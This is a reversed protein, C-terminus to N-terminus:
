RRKIIKKNKIEFIQDCIKLSNLRHSVIIITIKNKLKKIDDIIKKETNFDLASTAEDLILIDPDKYIARAIGIRQKQGGSLRIGREGVFIQDNNKQDKLFELVQSIYISKELKKKDYNGDDINLTINNRITDDLLFTDQPVYGIIEQWGRKNFKINKGDVLVKGKQPDMLGLILDLFTSKGIGTKGIIGVCSNKKINLNSNEFVSKKVDTKKTKSSYFFSLNDIQINNRFNIRKKQKKISKIKSLKIFEKYILDLSPVGLKLTQINVMIRNVSPIIKIAALAILSLKPITYILNVSQSSLYLVLSVFLLITLLEFFHRPLSLLFARISILQLDRNTFIQFLKIFFKEKLFIKVTKIGNFSSQSYFLRKKSTTLKEEGIKKLKKKVIQYYVYSSFLYVCFILVLYKFPITFLIIVFIGFLIICDLLLHLLPILIKKVLADAEGVVNRILTTSNRNLYFEYNAYVYKNFLRSVISFNLYAAFKFQYLNYLIYFLTKISFALLLLILVLSMIEIDFYDSVSLFYSEFIPLREDILITTVPLILGIGLFEFFTSLFMMILLIIIKKTSGNPMIYFLKKLNHM